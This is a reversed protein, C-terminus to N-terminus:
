WLAVNHEALVAAECPVVCSGVVCGGSENVHATLVGSALRALHEIEAQMSGVPFLSNDSAVVMM